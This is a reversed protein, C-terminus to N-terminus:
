VSPQLAAAHQLHQLARSAVERPDRSFDFAELSVWGSYDLHMLSSLLERFNYNGTGPEKGDMENVHIHRIHPWFNRLVATHPLSEDAANHVDFMTQIAPSGIEEVIKVAEAVTNVVDCQDSSLPELLVQVNRSEAHPAIQALGERMRETAQPRTAGKVTSRQKPSGFVLVATSNPLPNIDACLDILDRIFRWTAVRQQNDGTTAHLNKPSALIWHLGVFSLENQAVTRRIVRRDESTLQVPNEALTFPAIEVGTYGIERIAACGEAFKFQQFLENCTAFRLPPAM